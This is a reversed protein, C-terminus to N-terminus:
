STLLPQAACRCSLDIILDLGRFVCMYGSYSILEVHLSILNFNKKNPHVHIDNISIRENFRMM